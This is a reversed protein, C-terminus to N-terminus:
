NSYFCNKARFKLSINFVIVPLNFYNMKLSNNLNLRLHLETIETHFPSRDMEM